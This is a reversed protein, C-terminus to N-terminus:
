HSFLSSFRHTEQTVFGEETKVIFYAALELRQALNLGEDEGLVMLATAWADAELASQAAVTVSALRHTVPRGTRADITHSFRVGDKEFYNKYDGSTALSVNELRLVKQVGAQGVLPKEVAVRWADARPSQGKSRLEGGIEVLYDDFGSSELYEAVEDVGFGKAISSLDIYLAPKSKILSRPKARLTLAAQGVSAAADSISQNSPVLDDFQSGPGFGWLNVLPGVTVDYAGSSLSNVLEAYELVTFLEQSVPIWNLTPNKNILSLESDPLYTSMSANVQQLVQDIGENIESFDKDSGPQSVVVSYTTGMTSGRFEWKEPLKSCAQLCLVSLAVAIYFM